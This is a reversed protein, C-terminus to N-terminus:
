MLHEIFDVLYCAYFPYGVVTTSCNAVTDQVPLTFTFNDRHKIFYWVMFVRGSSSYWAMFIYHHLPPVVGHMRLRLVLHLHLETFQLHINWVLCLLCSMVCAEYNNQPSLVKGPRLDIVAEQEAQFQHGKNNPVAVAGSHWRM